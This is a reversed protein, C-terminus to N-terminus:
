HALRRNNEEETLGLILETEEAAILFETNIPDKGADDHDWHVRVLMRKEKGFRALVPCTKRGV